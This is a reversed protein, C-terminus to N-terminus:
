KPEHIPACVLGVPEAAEAFEFRLGATPVPRDGLRCCRLYYEGTESALAEIRGRLDALSLNATM